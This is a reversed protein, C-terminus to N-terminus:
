GTEDEDDEDEDDDEGDDDGGDGPGANEPPGRNDDGDPGADEPPGRDEDEDLGANEPPGREGIGDSETENGESSQEDDTDNGPGVDEPAGSEGDPGIDEPPGANETVFEAVVPGLPQDLAANQVSGILAAVFQGFPTNAPGAGDNGRVTTTREVTTGNATASLTANVTEAPAELVVYGDEDTEYTGTESWNGEPTVTVTANAVGAGNETIAVTVDGAGQQVGIALEAAQEGPTLEVVTTASENGAAATIEVTVPEDAPPLDVTGNADTEYEGLGAYADETENEGAEDALAVTVTANEVPTDNQTVTVTPDGDAGTVDVALGSAAAGVSVVAVLGVAALLLIQRISRM